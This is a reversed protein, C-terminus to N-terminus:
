FLRFSYSESLGLSRCFYAVRKAVKSLWLVNCRPTQDLNVSNANFVSIEFSFFYIYLYRPFTVSVVYLRGSTGFSPFIFSHHSFFHWTHFWLRVLLFSQSVHIAQVNVLFVVWGHPNPTPSAAGLLLVICVSLFRSAFNVAILSSSWPETTCLMTLKVLENTALINVTRTLVVDLESTNRSFFFHSYSKCICFSKM